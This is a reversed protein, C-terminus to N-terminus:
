GEIVMPLMQKIESDQSSQSSSANEKNQYNNYQQKQQFGSNESNNGQYQNKNQSGQSFVSQNQQNGSNQNYGRNQYIGHGGIYNVDAQLDYSDNATLVQNVQDEVFNVSKQDRKMLMDIKVNLEEINKSDSGYNGKLRDSTIRPLIIM